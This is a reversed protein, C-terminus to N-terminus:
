ERRDADPKLKQLDFTSGSSSGGSSSGGSFINISSIGGSFINISSSGSM